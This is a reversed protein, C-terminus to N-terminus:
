GIYGNVHAEMEKAALGDLQHRLTFIMDDQTLDAELRLRKLTQGFIGWDFHYDRNNYIPDETYVTNKKHKARPATKKMAM